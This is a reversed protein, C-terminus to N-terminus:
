EKHEELHKQMLFQRSKIRRVQHSALLSLKPIQTRKSSYNTYAERVQRDTMTNMRTYRFRDREMIDFVDQREFFATLDRRGYDFMMELIENIGRQISISSLNVRFVDAFQKMLTQAFCYDGNKLALNLPTSYIQEQNSQVNVNCDSRVLLCDAVKNLKSKDCPTNLNLISINRKASITEYIPISSKSRSEDDPRKILLLHLLSFGNNARLNIDPNYQILEEVVYGTINM